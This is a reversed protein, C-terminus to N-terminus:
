PFLSRFPVTPTRLNSAMRKSPPGIFTSDSRQSKFFHESVPPDFLIQNTPRSRAQSLRALSVEKGSVHRAAINRCLANGSGVSIASAQDPPDHNRCSSAIFDHFSNPPATGAEIPPPGGRRATGRRGPPLGRCDVRAPWLTAAPFARSGALPPRQSLTARLFAPGALFFHTM